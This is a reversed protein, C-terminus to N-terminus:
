LIKTAHYKIQLVQDQAAIIESESEGKLYGWSLWLFTDEKSILQRDMSIIYRGHTIKGEWKEKLSKGIKAKIHQISEKTTDNNEDSQNLKEAVKGVLKTTSNM